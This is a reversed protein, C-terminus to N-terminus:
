DLFGVAHRDLFDDFTDLVTYALDVDIGVQAQGGGTGHTAHHGLLRALEVRALEEGLGDIGHAVDADGAVFGETGGAVGRLDLRDGQSTHVLAIGLALQGGLDVSGPRHDLLDNFFTPSAPLVLRFRGFFRLKRTTFSCKSATKLATNGVCTTKLPRSTADTGPGAMSYAPGTVTTSIAR